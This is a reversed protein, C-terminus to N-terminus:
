FPAVPHCCPCAVGGFGLDEEGRPSVPLGEGAEHRRRPREDRGDREGLEPVDLRGAIHRLVDVHLDPVVEAREAIGPAEEREEPLHRPLPRAPDRLAAAALHPPRSGVRGDLGGHVRAVVGGGPQELGLLEVDDVLGEVREGVVGTLDHREVVQFAVRGCLHCAEEAEPLLGDM